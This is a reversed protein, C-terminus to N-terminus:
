IGLLEGATKETLPHSFLFGQAYECGLKGLWIREEDTEVGEAVAELNLNQSLALMAKVIEYNKLGPKIGHVFSRDIKITDAPISALHSLSSFGTGFDDILIRLGMRKLEDLQSMGAVTDAMLVTETIELRLFHPPIGEAAIANRLTETLNGFAFQEDSINVSIYFSKGGRSIWSKATALASKLVCDGLLRMADTKELIPMFSGPVLLGLEPHQWRVLAEFGSLEANKLTYIPQYYNIIEGREVAKRFESSLRMSRVAIEHMQPEFLRVSSRKDAKASYMANDADRLMEEARQYRLSAMVAGISAGVYIDKDRFHYPSRLKESIRQAIRELTGGHPVSRVLVIFEDGGWRAVLCRDDVAALIEFAVAKIVLDGVHHGLSDNVLKFRDLDIFLLGFSGKVGHHKFEHIAESVANTIYHRNYVGTLSDHDALYQLEYTKAAVARRLMKVWLLGVAIIFVLVALAAFFIRQLKQLEVKRLQQAEGFWKQYLEEYTGDARVKDIGDNLWRLIEANGKRVAFAVNSALIPQGTSIIGTLGLKQLAYRGGVQTTIVCDHKGSALLRMAEFPDRVPISTYRIAQTRLYETSLAGAQQIIEKGNLEALSVIPKSGRRIFIESALVSHPKSFDAYEHRVPQDFMSVVQVKGDIFDSRISNWAGTVFNVRRGSKEAIARMLEIQFGELKGDDSFWEYPRFAEDAGYVIVNNDAAALRTLYFFLFGLITLSPRM